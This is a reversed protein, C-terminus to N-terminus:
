PGSAVEADIWTLTLLYRNAAPDNGISAVVPCEPGGAPRLTLRCSARPKGAAVSTLAARIRSAGEVGVWTDLALGLAMVRTTGLMDAGTRNLEHVVTRADISFCGVPQFDHLEVQRRLASELEARADLLEQAQLDVEVQHVQLEHLLTLADSATEPSSALAHLVTLADVARETSGKTAAAGTLCSTAQLRLEALRRPDIPHVNLDSLDSM